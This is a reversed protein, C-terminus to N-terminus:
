LENSIALRSFVFTKQQFCPEFYTMIQLLYQFVEFQCGFCVRLAWDRKCQQRLECLYFLLIKLRSRACPVCFGLVISKIFNGLWRGRDVMIFVLSCVLIKRGDISMGKSCFLINTIGKDTTRRWSTITNTNYQMTDKCTYVMSMQAMFIKLGNLLM